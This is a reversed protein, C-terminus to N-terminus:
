SKKVRKLVPLQAGCFPCFIFVLSRMYEMYEWAKGRRDWTLFGKEEEVQARPCCRLYSM